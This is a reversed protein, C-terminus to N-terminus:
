FPTAVAQSLPNKHTIPVLAAVRDKLSTNPSRGTRRRHIACVTLTNPSKRATNAIMATTVNLSCPVAVCTAITSTDNIAGSAITLGSAPTKTSRHCKFRVIIALSRIRPTSTSASTNTCSRYTIYTMRNVILKTEAKKAEARQERDVHEVHQVRRGRRETHQIGQDADAHDDPRLQERPKRPVDRLLVQHHVSQASHAYRYQGRHREARDSRGRRSHEPQAQARGRNEDRRHRRELM